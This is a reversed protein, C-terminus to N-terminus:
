GTIQSVKGLVDWGWYINRVGGVRGMGMGSGVGGDLVVGRVVM